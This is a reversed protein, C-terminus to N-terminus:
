LRVAAPPAEADVGAPFSILFLLCKESKTLLDGPERGFVVISYLTSGDRLM